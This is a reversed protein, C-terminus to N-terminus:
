PQTQFNYFDNCLFISCILSRTGQNTNCIQHTTKFNGHGGGGGWVCVCVVRKMAKNRWAAEVLVIKKFVFPLFTGQFM